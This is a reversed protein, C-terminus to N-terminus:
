AKAKGSDATIPICLEAASFLRPMKGIFCTGPLSVAVLLQSGLKTQSQSGRVPRVIPAGIFASAPPSRQPSAPLPPFNPTKDLLATPHVCFM